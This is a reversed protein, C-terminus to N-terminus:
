PQISQDWIEQNSDIVFDNPYFPLSDVANISGELLVSVEPSSSINGIQFISLDNVFFLNTDDSHLQHINQSQTHLSYIDFHIGDFRYLGNESAIWVFGEQDQIVSSVQDFPAGTDSNYQVYGYQQTFVPLYFGWLFLSLLLKKSQSTM